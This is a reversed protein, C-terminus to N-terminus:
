TSLVAAIRVLAPSKRNDAATTSAPQEGPDGDPVDDLTLGVAPGGDFTLGAPGGVAM